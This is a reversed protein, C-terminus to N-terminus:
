SRDNVPFHGADDRARNKTGAWTACHQQLRDLSALFNSAATLVLFLSMSQKSFSVNRSEFSILNWIRKVFFIYKINSM